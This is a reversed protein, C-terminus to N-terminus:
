FPCDPDLECPLYPGLFELYVEDFTGCDSNDIVRFYDGVSNVYTEVSDHTRTHMDFLYLSCLSSLGALAPLPKHM